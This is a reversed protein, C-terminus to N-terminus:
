SLHLQLPRAAPGIRKVMLSAYPHMAVFWNDDETKRLYASGYDM